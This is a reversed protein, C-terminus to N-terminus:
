RPASRHGVSCGSRAVEVQGAHGLPEAGEGGDVVEAQGDRLAREEGQEARGPQPLVVVSRITAPSSSGVLPVIRSPSWSM